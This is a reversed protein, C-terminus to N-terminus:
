HSAVLHKEGKPVTKFGLLGKKHKRAFSQRAGSLLLPSRISFNGSTCMPRLKRDVFPFTYRGQTSQMISQAYDENQKTNKRLWESACTWFRQAFFLDQLVGGTHEIFSLTKRKTNRKSVEEGPFLMKGQNKNALVTGRMISLTTPGILCESKKWISLSVNWCLSQKQSFFFRHGIEMTAQVSLSSCDLGPKYGVEEWAEEEEQVQMPTKALLLQEGRRYLTFGGEEVPHGILADLVNRSQELENFLATVTKEQFSETLWAMVARSLPDEELGKSLDTCTQQNLNFKVCHETCDQSFNNLFVRARFVVTATMSNKWAGAKRNKSVLSYESIIALSFLLGEINKTSQLLCPKLGEWIASM